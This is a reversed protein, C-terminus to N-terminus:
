LLKDKGKIKSWWLLGCSLLSFLWSRGKITPRAKILNRLFEQPGNFDELEMSANGIEFHTHADSGVATIIKNDRAFRRAKKTGVGFMARANFVEIIDIEKPFRHLEEGLCNPMLPIFPHPIYVLGGQKKIRRITEIPSLSYPIREKLFLGIIEGKTTFIEEGTIIKIKANQKEIKEKLRAAGEITGHDTVVIANIGRKECVKIIPDLKLHSDLSYQTHLHMEM